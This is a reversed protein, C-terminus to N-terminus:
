IALAIHLFRFFWLYGELCVGCWWWIYMNWVSYISFLSQAKRDVMYGSFCLFSLHPHHQTHKISYLAFGALQGSGGITKPSKTTNAFATVPVCNIYEFSSKGGDVRHTVYVPFFVM